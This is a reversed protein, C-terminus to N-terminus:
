AGDLEGMSNHFEPLALLIISCWKTFNKSTAQSKRIAGKNVHDVM